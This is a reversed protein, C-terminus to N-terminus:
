APKRFKLTMRDSEGIAMFAEKNTDGMGYTPPLRWVVDEPGPQDAPNANIESAEEFVFGASEMLAIVDSQRLYGNAGSAADGEATEPARHQVVGLVGGPKLVDYAESVADAMYDGGARNLNHLARVFLYADASGLVSEPADGFQWAMVEGTAGYEAAKAPFTAPFEAFRALRDEDLNPMLMRFMEGQYNAGAYAGDENLYPAIIRTYWGGGPLAEIVTMDPAIGFFALTEAPNRYADRAKDEESRAEIVSALRAEDVSSMQKEESMSAASADKGKMSQYTDCGGILTVAVLAAGALQLKKM